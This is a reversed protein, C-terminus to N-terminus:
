KKQAEEWKKYGASMIWYSILCVAMNFVYAGIFMAVLFPTYEPVWFVRWPTHILYVMLTYVFSIGYTILFYNKLCPKVPRRLVLYRYILLLSIILATWLITEVIIRRWTIFHFMLFFHHLMTPEESEMIRRRPWAKCDKQLKGFYEKTMHRRSM